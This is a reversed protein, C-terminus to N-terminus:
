ELLGWRISAPPRLRQRVLLALVPFGGVHVTILGGMPGLSLGPLGPARGRVSWKVTLLGKFMERIAMASPLASRTHTACLLPCIKLLMLAVAAVGEQVRRSLPGVGVGGRQGLAM